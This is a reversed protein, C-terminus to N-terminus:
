LARRIADIAERLHAPWSATMEHCFDLHERISAVERPSAGRSFAAAYTASARQTRRACEAQDGRALLMQVIELDALGTGLWLNPKAENRQGTSEAQRECLDALARHWDGRAYEPDLDELLLCAIAWNVLAYCRDGTEDDDSGSATEHIARTGDDDAYEGSRYRVERAGLQFRHEPVVVRKIGEAHM